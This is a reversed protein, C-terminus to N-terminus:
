ESAAPGLTDERDSLSILYLSIKAFIVIYFLCSIFANEKEETPSAFIHLFM